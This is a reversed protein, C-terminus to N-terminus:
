KVIFYTELPKGKVLPIPVLGYKKKGLEQILKEITLTSKSKYEQLTLLEAMCDYCSCYPTKPSDIVKKLEPDAVPFCFRRSWKNHFFLAEEYNKFDYEKITNINARTVFLRTEGSTQPPWIQLMIKGKVYPVKDGHKLTYPLRFKLLSYKPKLIKIWGLQAANDLHVQAEFKAHHKAGLRIDSIFLLDGEGAAKAAAAFRKKLAVCTEDTFFENHLEFRSDLLSTDFKAGDYLIFRVNPFLHLLVQLHTGPAAGVYVIVPKGDPNKKYYTNLLQIESMLLKRQGLHINDKIKDKPDYPATRSFRSLAQSFKIANKKNSVVHCHRNEM